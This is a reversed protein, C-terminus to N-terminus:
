GSLVRAFALTVLVVTMACLAATALKPGSGRLITRAREVVGIGGAPELRLPSGVVERLWGYFFGAFGLLIGAAAIALALVAWAGSDPLVLALVLGLAGATAGAVAYGLGRDTDRDRRDGGEALFRALRGIATNAWAREGVVAVMVAPVQRRFMLVVTREGEGDEHKAVIEASQVRPLEADSLAAALDNENVLEIERAPLRVTISFQTPTRQEDLTTAVAVLRAAEILDAVTGRWTDWRAAQEHEEVYGL